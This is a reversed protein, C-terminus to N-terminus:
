SRLPRKAGKLHGDTMVELHMFGTPRFVLLLVENGRQEVVCATFYTGWPFEREFMASPVLGFLEKDYSKVLQIFIDKPIKEDIHIPVKRLWAEEIKSSFATRYGAIQAEPNTTTAPSVALRRQVAAVVLSLEGSDLERTAPPKEDHAANQGDEPEVNKSRPDM